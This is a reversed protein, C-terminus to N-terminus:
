HKLELEPVPRGPAPELNDLNLFTIQYGHFLYQYSTRCLSFYTEVELFPKVSGMFNGVGKSSFQCNKDKMFHKGM